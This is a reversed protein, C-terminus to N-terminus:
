PVLLWDIQHDDEPYFVCPKKMGLGRQGSWCATPNEETNLLLLVGYRKPHRPMNLFLLLLVSEIANTSFKKTILFM